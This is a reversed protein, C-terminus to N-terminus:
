IPWWQESNLGANPRVLRDGFPWRRDYYRGVVVSAALADHPQHKAPRPRSM